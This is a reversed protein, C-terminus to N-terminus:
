WSFVTLVSRVELNNYAEQLTDRNNETQELGEAVDSSRNAQQVDAPAGIAPKSGLHEQLAIYQPKGLEDNQQSFSDPLQFAPSPLPALTLHM